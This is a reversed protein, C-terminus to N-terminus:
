YPSRSFVAREVEIKLQNMTEQPNFGTKRFEEATAKRANDYAADSEWVATTVVNFRGKGEVKEHLFGEVFGPLTRLFAQVQRSRDLFTSKSEEPVIFADILVKQM